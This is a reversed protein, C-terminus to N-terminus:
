TPIPVRFDNAGAPPSHTPSLVAEQTAPSFPRSSAFHPGVKETEVVTLKAARVIDLQMDPWARGPRWMELKGTIGLALLARCADGKRDELMQQRAHAFAGVGRFLRWTLAMIGIVVWLVGAVVAGVIGWPLGALLHWFWACFNMVLGRVVCQSVASSSRRVVKATVNM